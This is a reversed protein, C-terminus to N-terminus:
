SVDIAVTQPTRAVVTVDAFRDPGGNTGTDLATIRWTGPPVGLDVPCQHSCNTPTRATYTLHQACTSTPLWTVTIAKDRGKIDQSGPIMLRVAIPSLPLVVQPSTGPESDTHVVPSCEGTFVDYGGPSPYASWTREVGLPLTQQPYRVATVMQRDPLALQASWGTPMAYGGVATTGNYVNSLVRIPVAPGIRLADATVQGATVGVSKSLVTSGAITVWGPKLVTVPASGIPVHDFFVCGAADTTRTSGPISVSLGPLGSGDRDLVFFSIAGYPSAPDFVPADVLTDARVPRTRDRFATEVRTSVRKHLQRASGSAACSGTGGGASMTVAVERVVTYARGDVSTTTTTSALDYYNLSRAEDIDSAALQAATVRARNDFSGSLQSTLTSLLSLSGIVFIGMAVMVEVISVGADVGRRAACDSSLDM